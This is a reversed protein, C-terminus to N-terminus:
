QFFDAIQRVIVLASFAVIIGIIAYKVIDKGTNARKEDGASLFYMIAGILLMIIALVGIIALLFNLVYTAIETLTLASSAQSPLNNWGLVGALEKLFSPAVMVIALGILAATIAAKAAGVRKDNGASTIYLLAGIVLFVLALLVVINRMFGLVSDLFTEVTTYQTPPDFTILIPAGATPTTVGGGASSAVCCQGSNCTGNQTSGSPCTPNCTGGANSCAADSTPPTGSPAPPTPPTTAPSTSVCCVSSNWSFAIKENTGCSTARQAKLQAVRGNTGKPNTCVVTYSLCCAGNGAGFCGSGVQQEDSNCNNLIGTRCTGQAAKCQQANMPIIASYSSSPFFIVGTIVFALTIFFHKKM